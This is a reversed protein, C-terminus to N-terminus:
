KHKLSQHVHLGRESKFSRGCEECAFKKGADKGSDKDSPEEDSSAHKKAKHRRLGRSTDFEQGCEDCINSSQEEDGEVHSAIEQLQEAAEEAQEMEREVYYVTVLYVLPGVVPLLFTLFMFLFIQLNSMWQRRSFADYGIIVVVLLQVLAFTQLQEIM